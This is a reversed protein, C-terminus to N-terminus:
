DNDKEKIMKLLGEVEEIAKDLPEQRGIDLRKAIKEMVVQGRTLHRHLLELDKKLKSKTM